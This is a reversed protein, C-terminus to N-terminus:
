TRRKRVHHKGVPLQYQRSLVEAAAVGDMAGALQIDMLVLDPRLQAALEIAQEATACHGVPQYGMELLQQEIDRVVIVEDEVILIRPVAADM